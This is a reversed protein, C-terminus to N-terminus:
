MYKSVKDERCGGDKGLLKCKGYKTECFIGNVSAVLSTVLLLIVCLVNTKWM